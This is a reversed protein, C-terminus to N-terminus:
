FLTLVADIVPLCLEATWVMVNMLLRLSGRLFILLITKLTNMYHDVAYEALVPLIRPWVLRGLYTTLAILLLTYVLRVWVSSPLWALGFNQTPNTYAYLMSNEANDCSRQITFLLMNKFLTSRQLEAANGSLDVWRAALRQCHALRLERDDHGNLMYSTQMNATIYNYAKQIIYRDDIQENDFGALRKNNVESM